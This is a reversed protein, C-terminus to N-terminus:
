PMVIPMSRVGPYGAEINGYAPMVVRVDHGLARLAKPLSGGVDGLGGRKAFPSAEATIFLIKLKKAM